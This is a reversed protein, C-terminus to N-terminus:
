PTDPSEFRYPLSLVKLTNAVTPSTGISSQAFKDELVALGQWGEPSPAANVIIGITNTHEASYLEDGATLMEASAVRYLHRKLKGLYEMRAVIEQGTYCGKKFSVGGTKELSMMQPILADSTTARLQAIGAEILNLQWDAEPKLLALGKIQTLAERATEDQWWVEYGAELPLKIAIGQEGTVQDFDNEPVHGFMKEIISASKPGKVGLCRVDTIRMQSKFFVMYKKLHSLHIESLSQDLALWYEHDGKQALTFSSVMRGKPNCCAGRRFQTPSIDNLNCTFQGQMFKHSDAGEVCLVTQSPVAYIWTGETASNSNSPAPQFLDTLESWIDSM